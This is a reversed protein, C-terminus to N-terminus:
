HRRYLPHTARELGVKNLDLTLAVFFMEHNCIGICRCDLCSVAFVPCMSPKDAYICAKGEGSTFYGNFGIECMDHNVDHKEERVRYDCKEIVSAKPCAKPYPIHKIGDIIVYKRLIEDFRMTTNKSSAALLNKRRM